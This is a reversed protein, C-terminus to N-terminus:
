TAVDFVEDNDHEISRAMLLENLLDAAGSRTDTQDGVAVERRADARSHASRSHVRHHAYAASRFPNERRGRHSAQVTLNLGAENEFILKGFFFEAFNGVVVGHDFTHFRHSDFIRLLDVRRFIQSRALFDDEGARADGVARYEFAHAEEAVPDACMREHHRRFPTIHSEDIRHAYVAPGIDYDSELTRDSSFVFLVSLPKRVTPQAQEIIA